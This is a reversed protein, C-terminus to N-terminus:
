YDCEDDVNEADILGFGYQIPTTKRTQEYEKQKLELLEKLFTRKVSVFDSAIAQRIAKNEGIIICKKEARTILTYLLQTTLMFPVTDYNMVGIVIKASSGQLKHCTSVYGLVIYDIMEAYDLFVHNKSSCLPFDIEVRHRDTDINVITGCWGNYIDTTKDGIGISVGYYNKICMVKDGKHYCELACVAPNIVGQQILFDQIMPNLAQVSSIGRTKVPSIVQIDNIKQSIIDQETITPKFIEIDEDTILKVKKHLRDSIIQKICEKEFGPSTFAAKYWSVVKKPDMSREFALDFIMEKNKSCYIRGEDTSSFVERHHRVENSTDIIGGEAEEQRHVNVLNVSPIMPSNYLDAALNLAGISELQGMDGLMIFKTKDPDIAKLLSLFIEGGVMSIEDLIVVDYDLPNSECHAFGTAPSYGLLRHITYGEKGTIEALRAGAKGSLACQAIKKDKGLAALIGAVVSSKGTGASGTIMLLNEKLGKDIADQQEEDFSFGQESEQIKIRKEYGFHPIVNGSNKIKILYDAIDKELEYAKTLYIRRLTKNENEEIKIKGENILSDIADKVNSGIINGESDYYQEFISSKDGDGLEQIIGTNLDRSYIYSFGEEFQTLLFHYIFSKIRFPSKISIGSNLAYKDATKFGVNDVDECIQYPNEKLVKILVDDTAYKEQMKRIMSETFGFDMLEIYINAHQKKEEYKQIILNAYSPGIGKVSQLKEIDHADIVRLPDDLTSYLAEVQRPTVFSGLFTRFDSENIDEVSIVPNMMLLKYQEGYKPNVTKEAVVEYLTKIDPVYPFNGVVIIRGKNDYALDEESDNEKLKEVEWKTIGYKHVDDKCFDEKSPYTCFNYYGEFIIRDKGANNM